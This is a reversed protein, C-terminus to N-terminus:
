YANDLFSKMINKFRLPPPLRVYEPLMNILGARLRQHHFNAHTCYLQICAGTQFLTIEEGKSNCHGCVDAM